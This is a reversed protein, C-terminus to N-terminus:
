CKCLSVTGSPKISTIKISQPVAFRKSLVDDVSKLELYGAECWQHLAHIGKSAIFQALGSLSTGIRRNRSMVANTKEWHTSGLTVTKAYLFASHLTKKFDEIDDHHNPFTEVLCCM